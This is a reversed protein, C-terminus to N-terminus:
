ISSSLWLLKKKFFVAYCKVLEMDMGEAPIELYNQYEALLDSISLKSLRVYHKNNKLNKDTPKRMQLGEYEYVREPVTNIM